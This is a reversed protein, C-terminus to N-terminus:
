RAQHHIITDPHIKSFMRFALTLYMAAIDLILIIMWRPIFLVLVIALVAISLTVIMATKQTKTWRHNRGEPIIMYLSVAYYLLMIICLGLGTYTPLLQIGFVYHGSVIFIFFIEILSLLFCKVSKVMISYRHLIFSSSLFLSSWAWFLYDQADTSFISRIAIMASAIMLLFAIEGLNSILWKIDKNVATEVKGM